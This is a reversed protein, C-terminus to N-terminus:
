QHQRQRRGQVLPLPGLRLRRLSCRRRQWRLVRRRQRHRSAYRRRSHGPLPRYGGSSKDFAPCARYEAFAWPSRGDRQDGLGQDFMYGIREAIVKNTALEVIQLQSGAIWQERDEKTSLDAWTVGYKSLRTEAPEEKLKIDFYGTATRPVLVGRFRQLAQTKVDETEIFKFAGRMHQQSFTGNSNRGSLFSTLYEDGGFDRGYPDDMAYQDSLNIKEPRLRMLLMGEVNDVTKYIKEGATKCREDFLAQAKALKSRYEITRYISPVIPAIFLALVLAAYVLKRTQTKGFWLAACIGAFALLLYLNGAAAFLSDFGSMKLM